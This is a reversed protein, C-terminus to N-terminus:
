NKIVVFGAAGINYDAQEEWSAFLSDGIRAVATYVFNEPLRPLSSNTIETRLPASNFFVEASINEGVQSLNFTRLMRIDTELGSKKSVRYYMLGDPGLRLTDANWGDQVPFFELAPIETPFITNSDMNFSWTRPQPLFSSTELFRDDLYLLAVPNDEYYVLGGVTYQRWFNGGSFCYMALETDDNPAFKVFGYRNIALVLENSKEQYFSVHPAFPWPVLPASYVADEISRIHILGNETVLFWLPNAGTRLVASPVASVSPLASSTLSLVDPFRTCSLILCLSLGTLAFRCLSLTRCAKERYFNLTM